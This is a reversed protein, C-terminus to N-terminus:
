PRETAPRQTCLGVLVGPRRGAYVARGRALSVVVLRGRPTRVLAARADDAGAVGFGVPVCGHQALVPRVVRAYGDATPGAGPVAREGASSGGALLGVLLLAPLSRSAM